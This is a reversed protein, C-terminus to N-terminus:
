DDFPWAPWNMWTDPDGFPPCRGMTHGSYWTMRDSIIEKAKPPLASVQQILERILQIKLARESFVRNPLRLLNLLYVLEKINFLHWHREELIPDPVHTSRSTVPIIKTRRRRKRKRKKKRTHRLNYRITKKHASEESDSNEADDERAGFVVNINNQHCIRTWLTPGIGKVRKILDNASRFASYKRGCIIRSALAPGIGRISRLDNKSCNNIDLNM